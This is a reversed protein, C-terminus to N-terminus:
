LQVFEWKWDNVTSDASCTLRGSIHVSLCMIQINTPSLEAGKFGMELTLRETKASLLHKLDIPLIQIISQTNPEAGFLEDFPGTFINHSRLYDYFM